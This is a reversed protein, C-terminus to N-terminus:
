AEEKGRIYEYLKRAHRFLEMRSIDLFDTGCKRRLEARLGEDGLTAPEETGDERYRFFSEEGLANLVYRCEYNLVGRVALGERPIGHRVFLSIRSPNYFDTDQFVVEDACADEPSHQDPEVLWKVFREFNRYPFFRAVRMAPIGEGLAFCYAHLREESWNPLPFTYQGHDSLFVQIKDGALDNYLALCQDLYALSTQRQREQRPSKVRTDTFTLLDPSINPEHSEELIHFIYFCPKESSLLRELGTWWKVNCSASRSTEILHPADMSGKLHAIFKADYGREELYRIVPSSERSVPQRAREYDDIPLLKTFMASLSQHTFPTHTYARQFFCGAESRKKMLPMRPLQYYSVADTWFVLIDRQTRGQLRRRVAELLEEAKAQVLPVFPAGAAANEQCIRRLMVFDKLEVAAQLVERLAKEGEPGDRRELYKLYYHNLVVSHEPAYQDFPYMLPYGQRELEGYPDVVRLGLPKLEELIETRYYFSSVIVTDCGAEPLEEAAFCPYGCQTDAVKKRDFIGVVRKGTLPFEELLTNTHEGGGRVAVRADPPIADFAEQFTRRIRECLIEGLNEAGLLDHLEQYRTLIEEM